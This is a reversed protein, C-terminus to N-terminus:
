FHNKYHVKLPKTIYTYGEFPGNMSKCTFIVLARAQKQCVGVRVGVRLRTVETNRACYM